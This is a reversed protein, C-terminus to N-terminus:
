KKKILGPLNDGYAPYTFGPATKAPISVLRSDVSLIKTGPPNAPLPVPNVPGGDYRYTGNDPATMPIKATPVPAPLIEASLSPRTV